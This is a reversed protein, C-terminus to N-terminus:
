DQELLPIKTAREGESNVYLLSAVADYEMNM